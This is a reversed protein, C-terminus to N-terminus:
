RARDDEQLGALPVRTLEVDEKNTAYIVYLYGGAVLSKPYHFGARKYKGAFRLPALDDAGRLLFSRDFVRGDRSLTIALPTRERTGSPCNVLFATGDPLNGASQKARADPMNTLVPTSWTEGRDRSAAALQCYTSAQDRFVMILSGDRWFLSPELERSTAPKHPLNQMAGATWGSVGLPDDTYHPKAILGPQLHFATHLRGEYPHIDQEIVGNVPQDNPGTVRKPDSWTEGDASLRYVTHGGAGSAFGKPWVNVFGVLVTGDTWWGGSSRMEGGTGAPALVRPRSWAEGDASTSYAVWTDPADEDKASSQWQAYLRGKFAVLVAGNSYHDTDNTPRFVTFTRTGDARALGRDARDSAFLEPAVSYPPFGAATGNASLLSGLAVVAAFLRVRM